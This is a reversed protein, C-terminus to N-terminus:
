EATWTKGLGIRDIPPYAKRIALVLPIGIVGGVIMQIFNPGIEALAGAYGLGYIFWEGLFYVAILVIAGIGWGVIMGVLGKKHGLYGALLGQLGHAVLTLPAWSAYGSLIDAIACGIGGVIGGIWPGFAFASFFVGVDGFHIYGGTAPVPIQVAFTLVAAVAVMVAIVALTTVTFQNEKM